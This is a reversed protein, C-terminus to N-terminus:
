PTPQGPQWDNIDFNEPSGGGTDSTSTDWGTGEPNPRLGEGTISNNGVGGQNHLDPSSAPVTPIYDPVSLTGTDPFTFPSNEVNVNYDGQPLNGSVVSEMDALIIQSAEVMIPAALKWGELIAKFTYYPGWTLIILSLVFGVGIGILTRFDLRTFLKPLVNKVLFWIISVFIVISGVYMLALVLNRITLAEM